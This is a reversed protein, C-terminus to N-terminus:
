DAVSIRRTRRASASAHKPREASPVSDTVHCGNPNWCSLQPGSNPASTRQFFYPVTATTWNKNVPFTVTVVAERICTAINKAVRSSLGPTKVNLKEVIGDRSVTLVLELHGAGRVDPTRDMYCHEIEDSVPRLESRVEDASLGHSDALVPTASAWSAWFLIVALRNRM